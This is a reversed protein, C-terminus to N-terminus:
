WFNDENVTEGDLFSQTHETTSLIHFDLVVVYDRKFIYQVDNASAYDAVALNTQEVFNDVLFKVAQIERKRNTLFLSSTAFAYPSSEHDQLIINLDDEGNGTGGRINPLINMLNAKIRMQYLLLNTKYLNLNEKIPQFKQAQRTVLLGNVKVVLQEIEDLMTLLAEMMSDGIEGLMQETGGCIESLPTLRVEVLTSGQYPPDDHKRGAMLPLYQYFEVASEFSAPLAFSPSFDGYMSLKTTNLIEKESDTINVGGSGSISAGPIKNCTISLSGTVMTEEENEQVMRSLVFHAEM